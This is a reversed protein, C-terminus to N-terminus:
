VFGVQRHTNRGPKCSLRQAPVRKRVVTALAHEKPVLLGAFAWQAGVQQKTLPPCQHSPHRMEPFTDDPMQLTAQGM